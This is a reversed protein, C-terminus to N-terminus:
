RRYFSDLPPRAAGPQNFKGPVTSWQGSKLEGLKDGTIEDIFVAGLGMPDQVMRVGGYAVSRAIQDPIGMGKLEEYKKASNTKGEQRNKEAALKNKERAIEENSRNSRMTEGLTLQKFMLDAQKAAGMGVVQLAKQAGEDFAQPIMAPDLGISSLSGRLTDLSQQDTVLPAAKAIYDLIQTQMGLKEVVQKSKHSRLAMAKEPYGQQELLQAHYDSDYGKRHGATEVSFLQQIAQAGQSQTAAGMNMGVGAPPMPGAPANGPGPAAIMPPPANQGPMGPAMPQPAGAAAQRATSRFAQEDAMQSQALRLLMTNRATGTAAQMSDALSFPRTEPM